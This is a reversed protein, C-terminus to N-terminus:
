GPCNQSGTFHCIPVEAWMIPELENNASSQGDMTNKAYGSSKVGERRRGFNRGATQFVVPVLEAKKERQTAHM